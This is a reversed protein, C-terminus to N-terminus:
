HEIMHDKRVKGRNRRMVAAVPDPRALITLALVAVDNTSQLGSERKAAEVLAKPVEVRMMQKGLLGAQRAEALLSTALEARKDIPAGAPKAPKEASGPATGHVHSTTKGAM